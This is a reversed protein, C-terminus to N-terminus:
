LDCIRRRRVLDCYEFVLCTKPYLLDSTKSANFLNPGAKIPATHNWFGPGAFTATKTM